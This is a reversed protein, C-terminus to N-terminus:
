ESVVIGRKASRSTSSTPDVETGEGVLVLSGDNCGVALFKGGPMAAACRVGRFRKFYSVTRTLKLDSTRRICVEGSDAGGTVVVDQFENQLSLIQVFSLAEGVEVQALRTGSLNITHLSGSSSHAIVLGSGAAIALRTIKGSGIEVRQLSSLPYPPLLPHFLVEGLHM